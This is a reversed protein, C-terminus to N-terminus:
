FYNRHVRDSGKFSLINSLTGAETSYLRKSERERETELPLKSRM